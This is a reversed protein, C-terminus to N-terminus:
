QRDGFLGVMQDIQEDSLFQHVPFYFGGHGYYETAEIGADVFRRKLRGGDLTRPLTCVFAGPVVADALEFYPVVGFGALRRAVRNWNDRRARNWDGIVARECSIAALMRESDSPAASQGTAMEFAGKGFGAVASALLGGGPVPFYKPLSYIAFDGHRGVAAGALRTGVAYACDELLPIGLCRLTHMRYADCPFGFEHIVLVLKTNPTIRRSWGCVSEITGTVCSSIYPGNSTTHICVEDSGNLRLQRLCAGLASRADGFVALEHAADLWTGPHRLGADGAAGTQTASVPGAGHPSITIM